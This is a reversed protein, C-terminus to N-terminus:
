KLMSKGKNFIIYELNIEDTKLYILLNECIDNFVDYDKQEIEDKNLLSNMSPRITRLIFDAKKSLNVFLMSIEEDIEKNLDTLIDEQIMQKDKNVNSLEVKKAEVNEAILMKKENFWIRLKSSETWIKLFLNFDPLSHLEDIKVEDPLLNIKNVLEIYRNLVNQHKILICFVFIVLSEVEKGGLNGWINKMVFVKQLYKIGKDFFADKNQLILNITEEINDEVFSRPESKYEFFIENLEKQLNENLNKVLNQFIKSYSLSVRLDEKVCINELLKSNFISKYIFKDKKLEKQEEASDFLHFIINCISYILSRRIDTIIDNNSFIGYNEQLSSLKLQFGYSNVNPKSKPNYNLVIKEKNLVTMNIPFNENYTFVREPKKEDKTYLELTTSSEPNM